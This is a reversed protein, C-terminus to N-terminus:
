RRAHPRVGGETSSRHARVEGGHGWGEAGVASLWGDKTSAGRQQVGGALGEVAQRRQSIEAEGGAVTGGRGPRGVQSWAGASAV